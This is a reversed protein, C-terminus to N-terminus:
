ISPFLHNKAQPNSYYRKLRKISRDKIQRIREKSMNLNYAIEEISMPKRGELGFFTIVIEKERPTLIKLDDKIEQSISQDLMAQDPLKEDNLVMLDILATGDEDDIIPSDFSIHKSAAKMIMSLDKQTMNTFEALEQETPERELQQSLHNFAENIKNYTGVKNVPVRVMRSNEVISQLITQRIWWVAYSIFKFGKSEDFRKAAKILGLNGENILDGLSLGNHQYQKAVSVVFRLNASTLRNLAEMDGAKIRHTLEIEEEPTVMPIKAIENLYKEISVSDRNTIRNSIKLQQM